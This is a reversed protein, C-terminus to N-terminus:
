QPHGPDPSAGPGHRCDHQGEDGNGPRDSSTRVVLQGVTPGDGSGLSPLRNAPRGGRVMGGNGAAKKGTAAKASWVSNGGLIIADIVVDEEYANLWDLVDQNPRPKMGESLVNTDVLFTM